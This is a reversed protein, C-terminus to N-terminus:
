FVMMNKQVLLNKEEFKVEILEFIEEYTATQKFSYYGLLYCNDGKKIKEKEGNM